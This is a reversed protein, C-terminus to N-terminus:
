RSGQAGDGEVIGALREYSMAVGAEMPSKLVADRAEKTDYRLTQTLTTRGGRETFQVTGVMGGPYWPEDFTETAVIREPPVIGTLEGGMGMTRGDAHKWEYRYRGGARLDVDCVVLAWGPPGLLWRKLLEPRTWADGVLRRPAAFERTIVIDRDGSAALKFAGKTSM